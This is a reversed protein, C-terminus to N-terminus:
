RAPCDAVMSAPLAAYRAFKDWGPMARRNLELPTQQNEISISVAEQQEWNKLVGQTRQKKRSPRLLTTYMRM